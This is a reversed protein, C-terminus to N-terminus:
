LGAFARAVVPLKDGFFGASHGRYRDAVTVSEVREEFRGNQKASFTRFNKTSYHHILANNACKVIRLETIRYYDDARLAIFLERWLFNGGTVAGVCVM